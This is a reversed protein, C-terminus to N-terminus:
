NSNAWSPIDQGRRIIVCKQYDTRNLLTLIAQEEDPACGVLFKVEIDKKLIDACVVLAGVDNTPLEGRFLEIHEFSTASAGKLYGYDVPYVMDHYLPHCSGKPREIVLDSSLFLTDIKQWFYANNEFEM